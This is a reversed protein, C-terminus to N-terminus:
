HATLRVSGSSTDVRVQVAEPGGALVLRDRRDHSAAPFDSTIRGSSTDVLGVLVAGRPFSLQVGGSSAEARVATAPPPIAAWHASIAGSSSDLDARGVLGRATISGSSTDVVLDSVPGEVVVSGSSVDVSVRRVPRDLRLRVPGSSGDVVIEDAAGDVTVPASSVDFVLSAAGFDGAAKVAGSSGDVRLGMGPPMAVTVRGRIRPGGFWRREQASSRVLLGGESAEFRPVYAELRSASSSELEVEVEVAAGPRATVRVEHFSVDLVLTAGPLADFRHEFNRVEASVVTPTLIASLVLAPIAPHSRM